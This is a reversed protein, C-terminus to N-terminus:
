ADTKIEDCGGMNGSISIRNLFVVACVLALVGAATLSWYPVAPLVEHLSDIGDLAPIRSLIVSFTNNVCHLLMTLRLSGTKYYIWGFLCGILFAPIGQWINGHILAFFLSSIIIAWVPRVKALLGRLIIGRCLWEEFFPAFVATCLLSIWIPGKTLAELAERIAPSMEPLVLNIPDLAVAAALIAVVAAATAALGGVPGFNRSDVAVGTGFVSNASSKVSAYIMVPIFMLPYCVLNGYLLTMDKGLVALLIVQAVLSLAVGALFVLVTVILEKWGPVFRDYNSLIDFSATRNRRFFAM